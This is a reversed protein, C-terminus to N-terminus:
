REQAEDRAARDVVALGRQDASEERLGVADREVLELV